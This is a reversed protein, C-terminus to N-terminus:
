KVQALINRLKSANTRIYQSLQDKTPQNQDQDVLNSDQMFNPSSKAYSHHQLVRNNQNRESQNLASCIQNHLRRLKLQFACALTAIITEESLNSYYYNQFCHAQLKISAQLMQSLIGFAFARDQLESQGEVKIVVTQM